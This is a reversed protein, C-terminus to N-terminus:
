DCFCGCCVIWFREILFVGLVFCLLCVRCTIVVFHLTKLILIDCVAVVESDVAFVGKM